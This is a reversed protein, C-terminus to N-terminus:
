YLVGLLTGGESADVQSGDRVDPCGPWRSLCSAFNRGMWCRSMKGDASRCRRTPNPKRALRILNLYAPDGGCPNARIRASQADLSPSGPRFTLPTRVPDPPKYHMKGSPWRESRPISLAKWVWPVMRSGIVAPALGSKRGRFHQKQRQMQGAAAALAARRDLDPMPVPSLTARVRHYMCRVFLSCSVGVPM